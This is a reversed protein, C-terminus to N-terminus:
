NGVVFALEQPSFNHLDPFFPSLNTVGYWRAITAFYQESSVSPIWIGNASLDDSGGLHLSPFRGYIDGGHVAGGLVLNHGGWAHETGGRSNPALTRNFESSTFITVRNAIGLARLRDYFSVIGDNLEAFLSAQTALQGSHTDFGSLAITFTSSSSSHSLATSVLTLRQKLTVGPSPSSAAAPTIGSAAADWSVGLRGQQLYRIQSAGTHLFLDSPLQQPNFQGKILPRDTRGVNAVVSLIGQNYLEQVGSLAPHLGYNSSTSPARIPLLSARPLALSGRGRVYADYGPSDLPVIMNNSDNGGLLYICVCARDLSTAASAIPDLLSSLSLAGVAKAGLDLLM